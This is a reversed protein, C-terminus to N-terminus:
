AVEWRDLIDRYWDVYARCQAVADFRRAADDSANRGLTRRLADDDILRAVAAAMADPDGIGVLAGTPARDVDADQPEGPLAISRVQEPIGGVATAVVPTGCAVAELVATPFTDARAAHLYLDAAHYHHAVVAPDAEFPAGRITARGSQRTGADDGLVLLTIERDLLEAARSAARAVTDMDKFPNDPAASGVSLLITDAIPLGLRTRAARRDGPRFVELDVGNPIVRLDRVGPELMSDRVMEALWASPTAVHLRSRRFVDRKRRWNTATADRHVAPFITLDPCAGCGTRWRACGMSHACHGSLLWADHLTLAVPVDRSLKPLIRLDFYGGHLNHLHVIDPPRPLTDLMRATAPYRYTELGLRRDVIRGPGALAHAIRTRTDTPFGHVDPADADGRGVLLSADHGLRRFGDLLQRAIFEAGGGRATPSVQAISLPRATM